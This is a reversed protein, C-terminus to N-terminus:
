IVERAVWIAMFCLYQVEPLAFHTQRFKRWKNALQLMTGDKAIECKEWLGM